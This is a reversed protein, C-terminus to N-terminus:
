RAVYLAPSTQCAAVQGPPGPSEFDAGTTPAVVPKRQSWLLNVTPLFESVRDQKLKIREIEGTEPEVIHIQFVNKAIDMGIIPLQATRKM